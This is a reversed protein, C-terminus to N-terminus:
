STTLIGTSRGRDLCLERSHLLLTRQQHRRIAQRCQQWGAWTQYKSFEIRSIFPNGELEKQTWSFAVTSCLFWYLLDCFLRQNGCFQTYAVQASERSFYLDLCPIHQSVVTYCIDFTVTFVISTLLQYIMKYSISIKFFSITQLFAFVPKSTISHPLTWNCYYFFPISLRELILLPKM